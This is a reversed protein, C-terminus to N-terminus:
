DYRRLLIRLILLRFLERILCSFNFIFRVIILFLKDGNLVFKMRSMISKIRSRNSIGNIDIISVDMRLDQFRAHNDFLGLLFGYDAASGLGTKFRNETLLQKKTFCSQHSFPMRFNMQWIPKAERRLSSHNGLDLIHNGYYVDVNRDDILKSIETLTSKSAFRDGSNMFIIYEGNAKSVGQNMADYIGTDSSRDIILGTKTELESTYDSAESGDKIVWQFEFDQELVSKSTTKFAEEDDKTITIVSFLM